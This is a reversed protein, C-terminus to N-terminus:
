KPLFGADLPHQNLFGSVLGYGLPYFFAFITPPIAIFSSLAGPAKPLRLLALVAITLILAIGWTPLIGIFIGIAVSLAVEMPTRRKPFLRNFAYRRLRIGRSERIRVPPQLIM